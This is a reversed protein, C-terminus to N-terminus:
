NIFDRAWADFSANIVGPKLLFGHADRAYEPSVERITGASQARLQMRAARELLVALYTAEEISNGATLIGHHALLISRKNGIAETIMRGEDDSFPVGPWEPLFACDEYFMATDMHVITLPQGITSLAAAYPPHSHVLCRLEPRARYLWMHFKIAPNVAYDSEIVNLEDDILCIDERTVQGFSPGMRPTLFCDPQDESRVTIQGALNEGHGNAALIQCALVMKEEITISPRQQGPMEDDYRKYIEVKEKKSM